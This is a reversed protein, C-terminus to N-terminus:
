RLALSSIALLTSFANTLLVVAKMPDSADILENKELISLAGSIAGPVKILHILGPFSVISAHLAVL